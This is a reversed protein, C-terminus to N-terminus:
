QRIVNSEIKNEGLRARARNMDDLKAYPGVRVRNVLVGNVMAQQLNVDFGLFTLRAKLAEADEAVRFAGVQLVYRGAPSTPITSKPPASAAKPKQSSVPTNADPTNSLTAMLQGLTDTPREQSSSRADEPTGTVAPPAVAINAGSPAMGAAADRGYLARNPDPALAPNPISPDPGRSARDVFPVPSKTVYVAVAAAVVLGLLVGAIIGFM